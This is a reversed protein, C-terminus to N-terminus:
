IKVNELEVIRQKLEIYHDLPICIYTKNQGVDGRKFIVAETFGKQVRTKSQEIASWINMSKHNKMEISLKLLDRSRQSTLKLDEGTECGVPTRIDDDTLDFAKKFKECVRKQFNRGKTIRSRVTAM